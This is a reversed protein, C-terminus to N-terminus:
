AAALQKPMDAPNIYFTVGTPQGCFFGSRALIFGQPIACESGEVGINQMPHRANAAELSGSSIGDLTCARYENRTGGCWNLDYIRVSSAAHVNFSRGKYEPFTAELLKRVSAKNVKLAESM